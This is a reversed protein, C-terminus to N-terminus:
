MADCRDLFTQVKKYHVLRNEKNYLGHAERAYEHYEFDVDAKELADRFKRAGAVPTRRDIIGHSVLLPVKIKDVHHIPSMERLKEPNTGMAADTYAATFYGNRGDWTKKLEEFEFFGADIISCDYYDNHRVVNHASSYGGYSGGATYVKDGVEYNAQVFEAGERQDDLMRTGWDTYGSQEFQKGYGGSGRFNPAFVAYGLEAYIQIYSDMDYANYPGHPGGHIYNILGKPKGKKPLVLWGQVMVGDSAEFMVSTYGSLNADIMADSVSYLYKAQGSSKEWMFYEGPQSPSAVLFTMYEDNEDGGLNEVRSDPFSKMFGAVLSGGKSKSHIKIRPQSDVWTSFSPTGNEESFTTSLDSVFGFDHIINLAGDELSISVLQRGANISTEQQMYGFLLKGDDSINLSEFGQPAFETIETWTEDASAKHFLSTTMDTRSPSEAVFHSADSNSFIGAGKAPGVFQREMKSSNVDFTYVVPRPAAGKGFSTVSVLVKSDDNPLTTLVNMWGNVKKTKRTPNLYVGQYSWVRTNKGTKIDYVFRDGWNQPRRGDNDDRSATYWYKQDSVWTGGGVRMRDKEEFRISANPIPRLTERDLFVLTPRDDVTMRTAIYQGTPSIDAGYFEGRALIADVSPPLAAQAINCVSILLMSIILTCRKKFASIFM